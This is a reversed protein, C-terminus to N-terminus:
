QAHGGREIWRPTKMGMISALDKLETVVNEPVAVNYEDLQTCLNELAVGPEGARVLSLMEAVQDSPLWVEASKLVTALREEIHRLDM